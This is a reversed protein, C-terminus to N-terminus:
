FFIYDTLFRDHHISFCYLFFIHFNETRIFDLQRVIALVEYNEFAIRFTDALRAEILCDDPLTALYFLFYFM